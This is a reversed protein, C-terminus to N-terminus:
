AVVPIDPLGNVTSGKLRNTLWTKINEMATLKWMGGDAEFLACTSGAESVKVRFIYTSSPQQVELFTRYPRLVVMPKVVKETVLHVGAKVTAHQTIGDDQQQIEAKATLNGALAVLEDVNSDHVFLSRLAIVFKEQPYYEGFKFEQEPKIRESIIFTQRRGWADSSRSEYRVQQHTIVHFLCLAPKADEFEAELLDVMGDLTSVSIASPVPPKHLTLTKDKDVYTYGGVDLTKGPTLEMVRDIVAVNLDSM